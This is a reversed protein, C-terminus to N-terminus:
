ATRPRRAGDPGSVLVVRAGRDRAAEALRYGMAGSRATRSSACPTSTRSRRARGDGAGDRGALDRRRALRALAAEVITTSRPSGARASGAAPSTARARSSSAWAARRAADRPEGARGPARVHQREHGAGGAGARADRPLAHQARRRRHRARVQRPQQGHGPGGAAARRRRRALHPPDRREGGLAWQDHFVAHRSLAEFTMPSVFRTAAATMVVHVDVGRRQLERLVECAKYAGICGTVGLVVVPVGSSSRSRRGAGGGPAQRAGGVVGGRRADGRGRHPHAQPQADRRAAQRRGAAAERAAGGGHHLPVQSDVDKPLIVQSM